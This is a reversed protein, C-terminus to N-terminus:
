SRPAANFCAIKILVTGVVESSPFVAVPPRNFTLPKQTRWRPM